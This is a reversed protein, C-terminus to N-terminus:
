EVPPDRRTAIWAVVLLWGLNDAVWLRQWSGVHAGSTQALLLMSGIALAISVGGLWRPAPATRRLAGVGLTLMAALTFFEYAGVSVGHVVDVWDSAATGSSACWAREVPCSTRFVAVSATAAAAGFICLACWRSRWGRSVARSTALHAAASSLLACIGLVAVPSGRSALSSIYDDRASYGDVLAGAGFVGAWFLLVGLVAAVRLVRM